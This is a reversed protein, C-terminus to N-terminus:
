NKVTVPERLEKTFMSALPSTALMSFLFHTTTLHASSEYSDKISSTSRPAPEM